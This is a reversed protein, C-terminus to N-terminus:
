LKSIWDGKKAESAAALQNIQEIALWHEKILHGKVLLGHKRSREMLEPMTYRTQPVLEISRRGVLYIGASAKYQFKPKETIGIVRNGGDLQLVGYSLQHEYNIMAVTLDARGREHEAALRGFDLDTLIDGNMVLISEAAGLRIGNKKFFSLPGATGLPRDEEFCTLRLGKQKIGALYHRILDAQYNLSLYVDNIGFKVLRTIIYDIIPRERVPILPKPVAFTLPRLRTGLGGALILAKKNKM